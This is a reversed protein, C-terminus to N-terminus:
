PGRAADGGPPGSRAGDRGVGGRRRPDGRPPRLPGSPRGREERGMRPPGPLRRRLRGGPRPLRPDVGARRRVARARRGRRARDRRPPRAPRGRRGRVPGPGQRAHLGSGADGPPGGRRARRRHRPRRRGRGRAHAVRDRRAGGPRAGRPPVPRAPRPRRRRRDQVGALPRQPVVRDGHRHGRRRADRGGGAPRAGLADRGPDRGGPLEGCGREPLVSHHRFLEYTGDILHVEM